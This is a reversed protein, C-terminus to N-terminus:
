RYTAKIKGWTGAVTETPGSGTVSLVIHMYSAGISYTPLPEPAGCDSAAIYSPASQGLNNSGVFFTYGRSQGNPTFVEVVLDYSEADPVLGGVVAEVLTLAQDPLQLTATGIRTMNAYRTDSSVPVTYLNVVVPQTAGGSYAYEVGFKVRDVVFEGTIGYAGNLRFRRLYANDTHSNNGPIDSNCSVSNGAMIAMSASQTLSLADSAQSEVQGSNEPSGAFESAAAGLPALLAVGAALVLLSTWKTM